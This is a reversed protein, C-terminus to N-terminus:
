SPRRSLSWHSNNSQGRRSQPSNQMRRTRRGRWPMGAILNLAKWVSHCPIEPIVQTVVLRWRDELPVNFKLPDQASTIKQFFGKRIITGAPEMQNEEDFDDFDDDSMTYARTPKCQTDPGEDSGTSISLPVFSQKRTQPEWRVNM